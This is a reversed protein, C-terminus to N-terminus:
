KLASAEIKKLIKDMAVFLNYETLDSNFQQGEKVLSCYLEFQSNGVKKM